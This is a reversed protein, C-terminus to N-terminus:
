MIVFSACFLRFLFLSFVVCLFVDNKNNYPPQLWPIATVSGNSDKVCIKDPSGQSIGTLLNRWSDYLSMNHKLAKSSM